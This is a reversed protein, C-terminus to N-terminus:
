AEVPIEEALMPDPGALYDACIMELAKGPTIDMVEHTHADITDGYEMTMREIAPKITAEYASKGFSFTRHIVPDLGEGLKITTVVDRVAELTLTASDAVLKKITEGHTDADLTFIERLKTLKSERLYERTIGLQRSKETISILYYASREKMDLGSGQEVWEGFSTFGWNLHYSNARAEFLLEGLDLMGDLMRSKINQIKALV